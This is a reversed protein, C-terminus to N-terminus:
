LINIKSIRHSYVTPQGTVALCNVFYLSKSPVSFVAELVISLLPIFIDKGFIGSILGYM